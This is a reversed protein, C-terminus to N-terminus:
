QDNDRDDSNQYTKEKWRHLRRSGSSSTDFTRVINSLETEGHDHIVVGM